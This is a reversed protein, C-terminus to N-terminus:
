ILTQVEAIKNELRKGSIPFPTKLEQAFLSVKYEEIMWYLEDIAAKKEETTEASISNKLTEWLLAYSHIERTRDLAKELHFLGRGARIELACIYRCLQSIREQPYAELFDHPLLATLEQRLQRLYSLAPGHSHNQKELRNLTQIAKFNAEMIPMALSMVEQGRPIIKSRMNQAHDIFQEKKSFYVFFLDHIVKSYLIRAVARTGGFMESWIKLNGTPVLTKRLYKLEGEFHKEYLAAVGLRHSRAADSFSHFLRLNIFGETSELAPFAVGTPQEPNGLPISEPLDGFDWSTINEREWTKRATDFSESKIQGLFQEHLSNIDRSSGLIQGNEGAVVFRMKLQDPLATLPWAASPVTVGFQEQLIRGLVIPLNQESVTAGTGSVSEVSSSFGRKSERKSLPSPPIKKNLHIIVTEAVTKLPPLQKRYLKPLGRVLSHIQEPLLGPVAMEFSHPSLAPIVSAPIKATVGDDPNGPTFRYTLPIRVGHVVTEDPWASLAETDPSQLLIDEETMRLSDEGGQQRIYKQLTREDHINPLRRLYFGFVAEENLLTGQRRLKNEMIRVKEIVEENHRLFPYERKMSSQMLGERIFIDTAAAPDIRGYSVTRRPIILLGFLSVQAFAQVEGREKSWHPESYTVRCLPGAVEEIWEPQITAVTRAYLKSTEVWEAAVIWQGGRKFLGSGPFIMAEKGKSATYLNKEKKMAIGSLLGSLIAKHITAYKDEAIDSAKAAGQKMEEAVITRLQHHLDQWERMRRYSLYHERCFNRLRGKSKEQEGAEHYIDWIRLLTAFDSAPDRFRAHMQDAQAAKEQPRERPDVISLAATIILIEELCGRKMAAIIMRAIRPDLPLRAMLRGVDSLVLTEEIRVAGLEKLIDIADTLQKKAPHDLFPFTFVDGIALYLMRLVVGALNARIIEPQTFAPRSLYDNKEYLRICVGNRVRGCRGQRQDASSRSINQIPLSATRTRPNYQAIRALGTDIVYRINPITISTEAVNTAVVIKQLASPQFVRQQEAWTLRSFMPLITMAKGFRGALLECTERIDQETPMFVLIDGQDRDVRLSEVAEVVADLYSGGEGNDDGEPVHPQYRVEVPFLRGSITIIPAKNFALSFKETDMTASTIIVKLDPRRPLITRLIGIIFDINLSREHAEDVIITDYRRLLRDRQAEMLLVGDTMLKIYSHLGAREDFRIKYAVSQGIQEGLEEAIRQAVTIAAVRRPQTCGILGRIGRGADLCMKPIQTSKGSGTEGAIILVQHKRIAAVIEERRAAIPLQPPYSTKPALAQREEWRKQLTSPKRKM